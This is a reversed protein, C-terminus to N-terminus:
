LEDGRDRGNHQGGRSAHRDGNMEGFGSRRLIMKPTLKVAGYGTAWGAVMEIDGKHAPVEGSKEQENSTPFARTSNIQLLVHRDHQKSFARSGGCMVGEGVFTVGEGIAEVVFQAHKQTVSSPVVLRLKLLTTATSNYISLPFLDEHEQQTSAMWPARRPSAYSQIEIYAKMEESQDEIQVIPQHMIVEEDDDFEIYCKLWDAYAHGSQMQLLSVLLLLIWSSRINNPNNKVNMRATWMDSCIPLTM